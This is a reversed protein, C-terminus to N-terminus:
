RTLNPSDRALTKGQTGCCVFVRAPIRCPDRQTGSPFSISFGPSSVDALSSPTITKSGGWPGEPGQDKKKYSRCSRACPKGLTLVLQHVNASHSHTLCPTKTCAPSLPKSCGRYARRTFICGRNGVLVHSSRRVLHPGSAM